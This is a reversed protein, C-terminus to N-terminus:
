IEINLAKLLFAWQDAQEEILMATPKGLGHGAKTEISILVPNDGSHAEQLRAAFKFSHAPVVRDDHDSTTVLTAPYEVGEKINHLPSYAKLYEFDEPNDSSGYDSTWAWGITYQHFKLMDMVGVGPLCAGFLDPRQTMCDGVLLGGNSRGEIALTESSCYKEQILYEACAIFDDFVNQKREKTGAEHWDRGYEGGGRLNAVAFVGGMEMWVMRSVSFSPTLSIDFGGYGYLLTPHNGTLNLGKRHSVFMPVQTGDKSIAFIQTTEYLSTDLKFESEWLPEISKKAVDYKYRKPAVTFSSFSFFREKEHRRASLGTISGMGDPLDITQVLKGQLDYRRVVHYADHMYKCLFGDDVMTVTQLIDVQEPVITQWNEKEPKTINIAIISGKASEFDTHFYFQEDDNGLCIYLSEFETILKRFDITRLQATYDVDKDLPHYYIQYKSATGKTIYLILYTDDDSFVPSFGWKPEAPNEYVVIDEEQSTGIIHLCLQPSQNAATFTEGDKPQQYRKYLFGASDPLWTAGSFKSWEIVDTLDEGTQIDRVFWTKWDSGSVSKSYALYRGNKSISFNSLSATGDESFTNPDLLVRGEDDLSNMVYLVDQNQLGTNRFQFYLGKRKFPTFVKPYDWLEALRQKIAGRVPVSDIFDRSVVNQEDIWTQTESSNPDELWVYPDAIDTGHYSDVHELKKARPYDVKNNDDSKTM